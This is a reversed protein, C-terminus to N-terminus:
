SQAVPLRDFFQVYYVLEFRVSIDVNSARDASEFCCNWYWISGPNSGTTSTYETDESQGKSLGCIKRTTAYSKMYSSVRQAIPVLRATRALSQELTDSTSLFTQIDTNPYVIYSLASIGSNNVVDVKLSSATVRYKGYMACYQDYYLPQHGTSTYDPDFCSNGRFTYQTRTSLPVIHLSDVYKLKVFMRDSAGPSRVITTSAKNYKKRYTKGGKRGKKRYKKTTRVNKRPAM